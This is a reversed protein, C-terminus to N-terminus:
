DGFYSGSCASMCIPLRTAIEPRDLAKSWGLMPATGGTINQCARCRMRMESKPPLTFIVTGTHLGIPVPQSTTARPTVTDSRIMAARVSYTGGFTQNQGHELGIAVLLFTILCMIMSSCIRPAAAAS